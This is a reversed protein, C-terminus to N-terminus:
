TNSEDKLVGKLADRGRSLRTKITNESVNILNSIEKISYGEYYFLYIVQRYKLPLNFVQQLLSDNHSTQAGVFSNFDEVEVRKNRYWQKFLNISENHAVKLCWSKVHQSNLFNQEQQFLKMFVNQVIDLTEDENKTITLVYRFIDNFYFQYYHEFEERKM